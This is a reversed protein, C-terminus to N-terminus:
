GSVGPEAPNARLFRAFVATAIVFMLAGAITMIAGPSLDLFAGASGAVLLVVSYVLFRTSAILLATMAAPIALLMAPLGAVLRTGPIEPLLERHFYLELAAILAIIGFYVVLKLRKRNQRERSDSFEVFGLRPEVFRQRFPGWLPVMLAPVIAAAAPLDRLWLVGILLVGLASFVDLLGDDWYHRYLRRELSKDDDLM